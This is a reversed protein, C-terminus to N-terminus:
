IQENKQEQRKVESLTYDFSFTLIVYNRTKFVAFFSYEDIKIEYVDEIEGLFTKIIRKQQNTPVVEIKRTCKTLPFIISRVEQLIILFNSKQLQRIMCLRLANFQWSGYPQSLVVFFPKKAVEFLEDILLVRPQADFSQYYKSFLIKAFCQM